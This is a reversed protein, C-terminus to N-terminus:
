CFVQQRHYELFEISEPSPSRRLPMPLGLSRRDEDTIRTSILMEGDNAFSILGRDFLADLNASLLIGNSPSLRQRNNSASWPKIHSARLLEPSTLGTVACAGGWTKLLSARFAGQGRRALINALRGTIQEDSMGDNDFEQTAQTAAVADLLSNWKDGRSALPVQYLIRSAVNRDIRTYSGFMKLLISRGTIQRADLTIPQDPWWFYEEPCIWSPIWHVGYKKSQWFRMFAKETGFAARVAQVAWADHWLGDLKLKIALDKRFDGQEEGFLPRCHAGVGVLQQVGDHSATMFVFAEDVLSDALANGIPETHFVRFSGNRDKFRMADSNNWEEHGFGHQSPFGSSARHGAPKRYGNSNWMIPKILFTTM